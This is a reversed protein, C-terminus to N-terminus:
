TNLKKLVKKNASIFKDIDDKSLASSFFLCEYPSPPLYIGEELMLQFYDSFKETNCSMADEYNNIEKKDTFFLTLMSGNRNIIANTNTAKINNLLGQHISRSIIELEEYFKKDLKNLVTLGASMALPNGSLTGAQYVPGNPALCDMIEPLGLTMAGSGAKILFSDGHGHYNGSFKIIYEKKTYGRALRIASMTAETGSNVMRVKEISPIMSVIKEAIQTELITPAGYSTGNAAAKNIASLVDDNAHGLIMPGWSSVFDIYINGDIDTIKSGKAESIFIPSCHVSKFARVPSNVGGPIVKKANEFAKISKKLNM